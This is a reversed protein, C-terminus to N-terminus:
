SSVVVSVNVTTLPISSSTDVTFIGDTDVSVGSASGVLAYSNHDIVCRSSNSTAETDM